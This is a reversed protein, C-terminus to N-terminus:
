TKVQLVGDFGPKLMKVKFFNPDQLVLYIYIYVSYQFILTYLSVPEVGVFKPNPLGVKHATYQAVDGIHISTFPGGIWGPYSHCMQSCMQVNPVEIPQCFLSCRCSVMTEQNKTEKFWGISYRMFVLAEDSYSIAM